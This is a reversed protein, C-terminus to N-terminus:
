MGTFKKAFDVIQKLANVDKNKLILDINAINNGDSSAEFYSIQSALNYYMQYEEGGFGVMMKVVPLELIANMNIVMFFNKGKMDSAYETDKISKEVPKGISKYLLEDNTAYMQKDKIGFFLNMQRSKFVYEDEDLKVIDEGRNLNLAKKNDYLAKLANGNKVDAYVAFTPANNMTFNILGASIDGNFSAFLEKIEDAKALSFTNRFDPNDQLLNYTEEGNAGVNMFAITSAPFYKLFTSNLKKTAQQQKELMAMVEKNDTYYESQMAIKGKEFSLSGLIMLDKPDINIGSMSMATNLQRAYMEPLAAFSTLVNIDGKQKQMKQFGTNGIISNEGTQKLLSGIVKVANDMQSNSNVHVLMAVSENFALIDNTGIKTQSFGDSTEVPQCLQEKVMVELSAELKDRDTVKGLLSTYPFSPSTFYYIPAEIDIGSEKPNNIVKEIQQFSAANIGGKLAEIIKQKAAENEKDKLGSKDILSKLNISAVASADAPIANTYDAQKSCSAMFVILVALVSLRSIMKKVM